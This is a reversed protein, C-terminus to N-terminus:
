MHCGGGSMHFERPEEDLMTRIHRGLLPAPNSRQMQRRIGPIYFDDAEKDCV